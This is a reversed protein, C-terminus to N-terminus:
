DGLTHFALNADFVRMSKVKGQNEQILANHHPDTQYRDHAKRDKFIMVLAVDFSRDNVPRSLDDALEGAALYVLGDMKALRERCSRIFSEKSQESDDNLDFYVCHALPRDASGEKAVLLSALVQIAVAASLVYFTRRIM